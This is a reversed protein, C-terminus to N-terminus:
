QGFSSLSSQTSQLADELRDVTSTVRDESFDHKEVLVEIIADRDPDGYSFEIDETPPDQFFELIARWDNDHDWELDEQELIEEFSDHERIYEMAHVPGVGKIGGPDFDTGMLVAAWTLQERTVGLEELAARCEVKEPVVERYKDKGPVKRRGTTTMNRVFREAGFLVSDWDQSGVAWVQGQQNMHSAQAEGESPAQVHPIGMADLLETAEEVMEGTLKSSQTAKSFAKKMKGEELLEKWEERAKERKKRREKAEEAKLDPPSGDLVYVPKVNKELLKANRYFLGSLHSTVHGQSDKLPEGTPQRIISLFQYMTNMADVAIERDLLHDFSIEETEILEGLDTGM